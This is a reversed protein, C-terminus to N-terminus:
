RSVSRFVVAITGPGCHTGIVPGVPYRWVESSPFAERIKAELKDGSARNDADLVVIPYKDLDAGLTKVKEVLTSIAKNAGTVKAVVQLEGDDNVHLIPKLSFLSGIAAAAASIRGGRKLHFLDDVAFYETYNNVNNELFSIVEDLTHGQQYYKVAYYVQIGAGWCISKTDFRRFRADPYKARLDKLAMELHNFTGSMKSSFSIYLMDEGAKFYPELVETYIQANLASTIPMSGGRVASYFATFDTAEGMDYFYEKGDITYPMKFLECGLEPLMTYWLECDTDFFIKSM